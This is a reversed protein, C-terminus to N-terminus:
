YSESIVLKLNEWQGGTIVWFGPIIYLKGPSDM